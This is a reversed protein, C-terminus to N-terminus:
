ASTKPDDSTSFLIKNSGQKKAQNLAQEAQDILEKKTEIEKEPYSAIGGSLTVKVMNGGVVFEYEEVTQRIREGVLGAGIRSTEPLIIMFEDGGYRCIVDTTRTVSKILGGLQRLISDGMAYGYNENITKFHDVDLVLASVPFNGYKCRRFEKELVDQTYGYTYLGSLSDTIALTEAKQQLKLNGFSVAAQNALITLLRLSQKDYAKSSGTAVFLLGLIENGLALPVAMGARISGTRPIVQEQGESVTHLDDFILSSRRQLVEAFATKAEQPNFNGFPKADPSEVAQLKMMGEEDKLYVAYTTASLLNRVIELTLKFLSEYTLASGFQGSEILGILSDGKEKERLSELRFLGLTSLALSLVLVLLWDPHLLVEQNIGQYYLKGGLFLIVGVISTVFSLTWSFTAAAYTALFFPLVFPWQGGYLFLLTVGILLDFLVLIPGTLPLFSSYLLGICVLAYFVVLEIGINSSVPQSLFYPRNSFTELLLFAIGIGRLALHVKMLQTKGSKESM